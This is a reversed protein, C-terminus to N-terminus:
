RNLKTILESFKDAAQQIKSGIFPKMIAPIEIDISTSVETSGPTVENLDIIISLPLPFKEAGYVVKDPAQTELIIFKVEGFQPVTITLGDDDLRLQGIQALQEPPLNDISERLFGPNSLREFIETAPRNVVVKKGTYCSM